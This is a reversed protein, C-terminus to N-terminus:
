AGPWTKGDANTTNQIDETKKVWGQTNDNQYATEDWTYNVAGRNLHDNADSYHIADSPLAVPRKWAGTTEDVVYTGKSTEPKRRIFADLDEDYTCGVGAFNKRFAKSADGSSHVNRSTNYSTQKWLPWGTLQECFQRGIEENENGDADLCVADAVVMVDIVKGNIGLKAFHAM